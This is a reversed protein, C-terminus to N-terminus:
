EKPGQIVGCAIREGANGTPQGFDDEKEHVIIAKGVVSNEDFITLGPLEVKTKGTGSEDININGMDGAHAGHVGDKPLYGHKVGAPNYHGGAAKGGDECSGNEHIHFGRKGSPTVGHVHVIATVGKKTQIFQATGIIESDPQTGKIHAVAVRKGQKVKEQNLVEKKSRMSGKGLDGSKMIKETAQVTMSLMFLFVIGLFGISLRTM